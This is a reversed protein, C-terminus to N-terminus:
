SHGGEAAKVVDLLQTRLSGEIRGGNSWLLAAKCAELLQPVAGLQAATLGNDCGEVTYIMTISDFIRRKFNPSLSCGCQDHGAFSSPIRFACNDCKM